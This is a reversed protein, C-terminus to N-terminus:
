IGEFFETDIDKIEYTDRTSVGLNYKLMLETLKDGDILVLSMNTKEQSTKAGKTFEGITIFIGKSSGKIDLAGIFDRIQASGVKSKWKKAQLFIKDLGLEDKKIFGDIGGDGSKGIAKGADEVSGGYGMAVILKVVLREFADDSCKSLYDMIEEKLSQNIINLSSELIEIPAKKSENKVEQTEKKTKNLFEVYEPFQKLFKNDIKKPKQQLASKGRTTIKFVGRQINELLGANRLQSVSWIVRTYFAGRRGIPTQKNLEEETMPFYEKMKEVTERLSHSKGDSLFALLPLQIDQTNPIAM